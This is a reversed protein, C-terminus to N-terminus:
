PGKAALFAKLASEANPNQWFANHPVEAFPMKHIGLVDSQITGALAQGTWGLSGQPGPFYEMNFLDAQAVHCTRCYLRPVSQYFSQAPKGGWTKPWGCSATTVDALSVPCSANPYFPHGTDDIYCGSKVYFQVRYPQPSVRLDPDFSYVMAVTAIRGINSHADSIATQPPKGTLIAPGDYNSVYCAVFDIRLKSAEVGSLCHMDRGFQLDANNYYSARIEGTVPRTPDASFGYKSKWGAFTGTQAPITGDLAGIAQYYLTAEAVCTAESTCAGGM